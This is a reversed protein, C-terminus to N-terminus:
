RQAQPAVVTNFRPERALLQQRQAPTLVALLARRTQAELAAQQRRNREYVTRLASQQATSLELEQPLCPLGAPCRSAAQQSAMAFALPFALLSAAIIALAARM